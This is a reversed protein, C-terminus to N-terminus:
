NIEVTVPDEDGNSETESVEVQLVVNNRRGRKNFVSTTKHIRRHAHAYRRRTVTATHSKQHTLLLRKRKRKQRKAETSISQCLASCSKWNFTRKEKKKELYKDFEACDRTKTIGNERYKSLEQLRYVLEREKMLNDMIHCHQQKTHFQAFPQLTDEINSQFNSVGNKTRRKSKKKFFEEVLQHDRIVRKRRVRERLRTTYIDVLTLQFPYEIGDDESHYKLHAVLEEADNDFELEYDDTLPTCGLKSAEETTIKLTPSPPVKTNIIPSLPSDDLGHFWPPKTQLSTCLPWTRKRTKPDYQVKVEKYDEDSLVYKSIEGWNKHGFTEIAEILRLNAKSTWCVDKPYLFIDGSCDFFRYGHTPKHRGIEAGLGFCEFCLQVSSCETCEIGLGPINEQCSDCHTPSFDDPPDRSRTSLNSRVSGGSERSM